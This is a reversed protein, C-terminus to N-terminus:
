KELHLRLKEVLLDVNPAALIDLHDGPIRYTKLAPVLASWGYGPNYDVADIAQVYVAPGPYSAAAYSRMAAVYKEDRAEAIRDNSTSTLRHVHGKVRRSLRQKLTRLRQELRGRRTRRRRDPVDSDLLALFAVEEGVARLQQAMEYALVGGFSFGLLRYPGRPQRARITHLYETALREVTPPAGTHENTPLVYEMELPVFVGYVPIDPGLRNALEQYLQIGCICFLPPDVGNPQLPILSNGDLASAAELASALTAITPFRFIMPLTCARRLDSRIRSVLRVTLLSHGGLDFFNDHIGLHELHLVERWIACLTKEM